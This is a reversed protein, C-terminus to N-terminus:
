KIGGPSRQDQLAVERERLWQGNHQLVALYVAPLHLTWWQSARVGHCLLAVTTRTALVIRTSSHQRPVVGRELIHGSCPRTTVGANDVVTAAWPLIGMVLAGRALALYPSRWPEIVPLSFFWRYRLIFYLPEHPFLVRTVSFPNKRVRFFNWCTCTQLMSSKHRENKKWSNKRTKRKWKIEIKKKKKKKICWHRTYPLFAYNPLITECFIHFPPAVM